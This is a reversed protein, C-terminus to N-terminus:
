ARNISRKFKRDHTLKSVFSNIHHPFLNFLYSVNINDFLNSICYKFFAKLICAFEIEFQQSYTFLIQNM